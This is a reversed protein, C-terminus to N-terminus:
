GNTRTCGSKQTLQSPCAVKRWNVNPNDAGQFFSGFRFNCGAQLQQPLKNCDSASSVGGYRAGWGDAPAGWQDDCGNFLGVGGGPIALDFQGQSLDGGINTAQVIMKKGAIATSTFTLEYCSCCTDAETGGPIHAAAFGYALSNSVAWPTQSSCMFASGGSDCGSRTNQDSLRQDSKGCIGVPQNVAAKGPWGCSPKCCDWYRTTKGAGSTSQGAAPAAFAAALAFLVITNLSPM